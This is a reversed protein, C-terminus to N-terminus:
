EEIDQEDEEPSLQYVEGENEIKVINEESPSDFIDLMNKITMNTKLNYVNPTFKTKYIKARFVFALPDDILKADVLNDAIKKVDEGKKIEFIIEKGDGSDIAREYFLRHGFGFLRIGIVYIIVLFIALKFLFKAIGMLFYSFNELFNGKGM